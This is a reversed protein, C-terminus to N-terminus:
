VRFGEPSDSPSCKLAVFRLSTLCSPHQIYTLHYGIVLLKVEHGDFKFERGCGLEPVFCQAVQEPAAPSRNAWDRDDQKWEHQRNRDSIRLHSRDSVYSTTCRDHEKHDKKQGDRMATSDPSAKEFRCGIM